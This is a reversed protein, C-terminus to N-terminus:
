NLAALAAKAAQSVIADGDRLAMNLISGASKERLKGLATAAALRFDRDRDFLMESLIAFAPHVTATPEPLPAKAEPPLTSLDIQLMDLLRLACHQVWYDKGKSAEIIKPVVLRVDENRLWNADLKQAVSTAAARVSSETDLMALVLPAVARRDKLQGLANIATERVDRDSDKILGCLAEVASHEGLTGLASAAARRVEWSKDGLCGVLGPVARVGGCKLAAEIAAHRVNPDSDRLLKEIKPFTKPDAQRELTGLASIRVAVSPKALAEIMAPQVRPDNIQGLAKVAAFQKNPEGNRLQELLPPVGDAGMKVLQQMHGMALLQIARHSDTAPDWGLRDLSRAAASRVGPDTDRLLGVLQNVALPDGFHGLTDAAAARVHAERDRLLHILPELARMDHFGSLAKAATARVVADKDQLAFILPGAADPDRNDALKRVVELRTKASSVRLQQYNWWLM